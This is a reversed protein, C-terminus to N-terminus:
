LEMWKKTASWYKGSSQVLFPLSRSGLTEAQIQTGPKNRLRKVVLDFIPFITALWFIRSLRTASMAQMCDFIYKKATKVMRVNLLSAM